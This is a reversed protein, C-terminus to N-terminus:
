EKKLDVLITAGTPSTQNMFVENGSSVITGQTNVGGSYSLDLTCNSNVSYTGSINIYSGSGNVSGYIVGAFGGSSTFTIYGVDTGASPYFEEGAYGYSGISYLTANSCGTATMQKLDIINTVGTPSTQNLLVENGSSVITGQVSQGSAYSVTLTCNSNVSYTGSINSSSGSGASGGYITGLFSGSSLFTIYGVWTGASPYVSEGVYGFTGINYLTSASCSAAEVKRVPRLAFAGLVVLFIVLTSVLVLITRKM